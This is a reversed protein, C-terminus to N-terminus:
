FRGLDLQALGFVVSEAEFVDARGRLAARARDGRTALVDLPGAEPDATNWGEEFVRLYLALFRNVVPGYARESPGAYLNALIGDSVFRSWTGILEAPDAYMVIVFTSLLGDVPQELPPERIDAEIVTVNSWGEREIRARARELMKPSIDIGIVEGTPGVADWLLPLNAGTGTGMDVVTDGASLGMRDITRRRAPRVLELLPNWDYFRAWQDYLAQISDISSDGHLGPEGHRDEGPATM